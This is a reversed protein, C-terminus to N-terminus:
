GWQQSLYDLINQIDREAQPSIIVAKATENKEAM